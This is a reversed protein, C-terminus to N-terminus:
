TFATVINLHIRVIFGYIIYIFYSRGNWVGSFVAAASSNLLIKIPNVNVLTKKMRTQKNTQKKRIIKLNKGWGNKSWTSHKILM